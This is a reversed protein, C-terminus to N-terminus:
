KRSDGLALRAPDIAMPDIEVLGGARNFRVPTLFILIPVEAASAAALSNIMTIASCDYKLHLYFPSFDLTDVALTPESYSLAATKGYSAGSIVFFQFAGDGHQILDMARRDDNILAVPDRLLRRKAGVIDLESNRAITNRLDINLSRLATNVDEDPHIIFTTSVINASWVEPRSPLFDDASTRLSYSVEASGRIGGPVALNVQLIAGPVFQRTNLLAVAAKKEGASNVHVSISDGPPPACSVRVVRDEDGCSMILLGASAAAVSKAWKAARRVQRSPPAVDSLDGQRQFM